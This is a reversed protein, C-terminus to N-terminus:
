ARPKDLFVIKFMFSFITIAKSVTKNNNVTATIAVVSDVCAAYLQSPTMASGDTPILTTKINSSTEDIQKQLLDLKESVAEERAEWRRNVTFATYCCSGAVLALVLLGAVIPKWVPKRHKKAKHPKGAPAAPDSHPNEYTHHHMEYPSDAFPSERKGTNVGHYTSGQAPEQSPAEPAEATEPTPEPENTFENNEFSDM